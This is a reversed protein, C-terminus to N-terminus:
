VRWNRSCTDCKSSVWIGYWMARLFIGCTSLLAFHRTFPFVDFVFQELKM